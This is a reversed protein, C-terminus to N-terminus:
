GLLDKLKLPKDTMWVMEIACTATIAVRPQAGVV